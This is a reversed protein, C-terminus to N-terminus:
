SGGGKKEGAKRARKSSVRVYEVIFSQLEVARREVQGAEDDIRELVVYQKSPERQPDGWALFAYSWLWDPEHRVLFGPHKRWLTGAEPLKETQAYDSYIADRLASAARKRERIIFELTALRERPDAKARKPKESKRRKSM